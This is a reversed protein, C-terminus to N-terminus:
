WLFFDNLKKLRQTANAGLFKFKSPVLKEIIKVDEVSLEELIKFDENLKMKKDSDLGFLQFENPSIKELLGYNCMEKLIHYDYKRPVNHICRRWVELIRKRSIILNRKGFKEVM